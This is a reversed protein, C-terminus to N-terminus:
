EDDAEESIGSDSLKLEKVIVKGSGGLKTRDEGVQYVEVEYVDDIDLDADPAYLVNDSLFETDILKDDIFIKSFENFRGGLVYMFEDKIWIDEIYIDYNGFNLETAKYPTMGNYVEQDGYLIDYELIEMEDLYNQEVEATMESNDLYNQHYCVMTGVHIDLLDLVYSSLQYAELDRAQGEIEFNSWIIYETQFLDKNTLDEETLGLSPLHDGYLVLVTKEDYSALIDTLRKIFLDMEYLQNVYYEFSNKEEETEFGSVTIIKEDGLIDETPYAGHGQVSITYIYDVNETANLTRYIEEVLISDKLWGLPTVNYNKMYEMPIFKDFGLQSFVENRNYFSGDNNHIAAASYGIEKLDFAISECVTSKLVTNYPYEGAGFFDLNMGTILEFETNATGAGVSPVSLFGSIYNDKMSRFNPIPDQSFSIDKIRTVDFFSELQLFIVNPTKDSAEVVVKNDDSSANNESTGETEPVNIILDSSLTEKPLIDENVIGNVVEESYNDPKSIGINLLSNSFCYAIGYDAYAESLNGFKAPVLKIHVAGSALGNVAFFTVVVTALSVLFKVNGESKPLKIFLYIISSIFAVIGIIILAILWWDMYVFAIDVASKILTLDSANFPTVRYSRLVFDVIGVVLWLASILITTFMKRRTLMVLSYTWLVIIVNLLFIVPHTFLYGIGRFLSRRSFCETILYVATSLLFYYLIHNKFLEKLKDKM